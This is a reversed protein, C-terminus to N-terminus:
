TLATLLDTGELAAAAAEVVRFDIGSAEAIDFLSHAGDSQNLVWLLAHEYQGPATGGVTRYLGRKGLQPECKPRQNECRRDADLIALTNAACYLTEALAQPEILALNDASSHYQPYMDNASRTLRGVPLNFGPSCLQREDYGYPSFPVIRSKLGAATMVHPVVRDVLADGRRSCKYTLAGCDGALGIILGHRVRGIRSENQALWVISGITGPAFVFRLTHRPKELSALRALETAVSMGACNDNALSPHCTHSFVIIESDTAGPIVAEAYTLSGPALTSDVVVEYEGEALRELDRHRLCFGWNERYYSTRYPIWDPHAPLSHLHPRLEELSMRASVPTSYSVVHLNHARFDIVRQGSADAVWADRINWENPVTWDFAPTGSPVEFKELTVREGIHRLTERVGGGTISRCIPYLKSAFAHLGAGSAASDSLSRLNDFLLTM